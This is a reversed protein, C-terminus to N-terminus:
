CRESTGFSLCHLLLVAADKWALHHSRPGPPFSRAIVPERAPTASRLGGSPPAGTGAAPAAGGGSGCRGPGPRERATRPAGPSGLGCRRGVAASVARWAWGAKWAKELPRSAPPDHSGPASLPLLFPLPGPGPETGPPLPWVWVGPASRGPCGAGEEALAAPSRLRGPAPGEPGRVEGRGRSARRASSAVGCPLSSGGSRLGPLTRRRSWTLKGSGPPLARRLRPRPKGRNM